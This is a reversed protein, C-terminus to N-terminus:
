QLLGNNEQQEPMNEMCIDLDGRAARTEWRGLVLQLYSCEQGPLLLETLQKECSMVEAARSLFAPKSNM